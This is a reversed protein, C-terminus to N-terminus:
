PLAGEPNPENQDFAAIFAAAGDDTAPIAVSYHWRPPTPVLEFGAARVRGVTSVHISGHPLDRRELTVAQERVARVIGRADTEPISWVSLSSDESIELEIRTKPLKM